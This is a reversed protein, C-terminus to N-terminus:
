TLIEKNNKVAEAGSKLSNYFDIGNMITKNM